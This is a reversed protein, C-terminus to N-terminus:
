TSLDVNDWAATSNLIWELARRRAIVIDLSVDGTPKNERRANKTWWHLRYYLDLMEYISKSSRLYMYRRYKEGDENYQVNPSLSALENGLPKDCPLELILNTAWAFAWLSELSFYLQYHDADTLENPSTLMALESPSLAALLNNEELWDFICYKPANMHLQYMANLVLAREVIEDESRVTPLELTPLWALTEGGISHILAESRSKVAQPDISENELTM